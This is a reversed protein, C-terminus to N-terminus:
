PNTRGVGAIPLHISFRSGRGPESEVQIHGGHGEVLGQSIALGLGTGSGVPKTTFFPTFVQDLHRPEIGHGTDRIHVVVFRSAVETEIHVEGRGEIAQAANVLLNVLVQTIQAANGRISPVDVPAHIVDAKYKLENGTITLASRVCENVDVSENRSEDNHAFHRLGSVIAAVRRSGELSDAVLSEIDELLFDIDEGNLRESWRQRLEPETEARAEVLARYDKVLGHLVRQYDDLTSLNGQIFGMPNNIEHAVGAALTGLSAMKESQVLQRQSALLRANAEALADRNSILATERTQIQMAMFGLLGLLAVALFVLAFFYVRSALVGGAHQPDGTVVLEFPTDAIPEALREPRPESLSEALRELWRDPLHEILGNPLPEVLAEFPSRSPASAAEPVGRAMLTIDQPKAESLTRVLRDSVVEQDILALIVAVPTERHKVTARVYVKPEPGSTVLLEVPATGTMSADVRFDAGGSDQGKDVLIEGELDRIVLRRYISEGDLRRTDVMAAVLQRMTLLSARLGYEMSMGLARNSFFVVLANDTALREIDARRESYFYSLASARKELEFSLSQRAARNLQEQSQFTTGLLLVLYVVLLTAATYILIRSKAFEM